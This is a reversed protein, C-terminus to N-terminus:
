PLEKYKEWEQQQVWIVRDPHRLAALKAAGATIM